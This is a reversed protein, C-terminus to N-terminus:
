DAQTAKKGKTDLQNAKEMCAVERFPVASSRGDELETRGLVNHEQTRKEAALMAIDAHCVLVVFTVLVVVVVADDLTLAGGGSDRREKSFHGQTVPHMYTTRLFIAGSLM